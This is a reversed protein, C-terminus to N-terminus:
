EKLLLQIKREAMTEGGAFLSVVYKGPEPFECDRIRVTCRITNLPEAFRATFSKRYIEDLETLEQVVVDMPVEGFGGTLHAFVIFPTRSPFRDITRHIFCNVLTVNHTKEEIIVQECLSLGIATPLKAM